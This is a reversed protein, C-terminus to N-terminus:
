GDLIRLVPDDGEDVFGKVGEKRVSPELARAARAGEEQMIYKESLWSAPAGFFACVFCVLAALVQWIWVLRWIGLWLFKTAELVPYCDDQAVVFWKGWHRDHVLRLRVVLEVEANYFPVFWVGFQQVVTAYAIGSGSDFAVSPVRLAIRPSLIKYWAYIRTIVARSNYGSGLDFSPTRVFPHSFSAHPLFHTELLTKQFSPPSQALAHILNPLDTLPDEM